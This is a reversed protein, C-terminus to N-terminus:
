YDGKVVDNIYKFLDEDNLIRDAVDNTKCLQALLKLAHMKEVYNGNMVIAKVSGFSKDYILRRYKENLAVRILINMISTSPAKENSVEYKFLTKNDDALFELKIKGQPENLEFSKGTKNLSELLSEVVRSLDEFEEIKNELAFSLYAYSYCCFENLHESKSAKIKTRISSLIDISNLGVWQDKNVLSLKSMYYVCKIIMFIVNTSTKALNDVFKDDSLFSLLLGIFDRKGMSFNYQISGTLGFDVILLMYYFISIKIENTDAHENPQEFNIDDNKFDL